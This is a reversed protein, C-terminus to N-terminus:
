RFVFDFSMRSHPTYTDFKPIGKALWVTQLDVSLNADGHVNCMSECEFTMVRKLLVAWKIILNKIYDCHDVCGCNLEPLLFFNNETVIRRDRGGQESEDREFDCFIIEYFKFIPRSGM